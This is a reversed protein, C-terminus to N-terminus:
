VNEFCKRGMCYTAKLDFDKSLVLIDADKGIELSGKRDYIGLYKASNESTMKIIDFVSPNVNEILNQVSKIYSLELDKIEEYDTRNYVKESGDDNRIIFKDGDPIFTQKRIYHYRENELQAIGANDTTMIIRDPGKLRYALQFAEKKVTIGTQKAFECYLDDYYLVSGAVGLERHHFSSMGSFM